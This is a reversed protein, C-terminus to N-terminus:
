VFILKHQALRQLFGSAHWALLVEGMYQYGTFFCVIGDPVTM